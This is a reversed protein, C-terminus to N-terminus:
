VVSLMCESYLFKLFFVIDIYLSPKDQHRNTQKYTQIWYVDFRSFRNTWFKYPGECSLGGFNSIYEFQVSESNAYHM